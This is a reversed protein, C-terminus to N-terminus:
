GRVFSAHFETNQFVQRSIGDAAHSFGVRNGGAAGNSGGWDASRGSEVARDGQLCAELKRCATLAESGDLAPADDVEDTRMRANGCTQEGGLRPRPLARGTPRVGLRGASVCANWRSVTAALTGQKRSVSRMGREVQFAACELNGARVRDSLSLPHRGAAVRATTDHLDDQTGATRAPARGTDRGPQRTPTLQQAHRGRCPFAEPKLNNNKTFPQRGPHRVPERVPLKEDLDGVLQVYRYEMGPPSSAGASSM